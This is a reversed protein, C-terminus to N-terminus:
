EREQRSWMGESSLWHLESCTGGKDEEKYSEVNKMWTSPEEGLPRIDQGDDEWEVGQGFQKGAKKKDKEWVVM